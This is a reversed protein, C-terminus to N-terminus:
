APVAEGDIPLAVDFGEGEIVDIAGSDYLRAIALEIADSKPPEGDQPPGFYVNMTLRVTLTVAFDYGDDMTLTM